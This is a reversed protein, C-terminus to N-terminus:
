HLFRVIPLTGYTQFKYSRKLLLSKLKPCFPFNVRIPILDNDGELTTAHFEVAVLSTSRKMIMVVNAINIPYASRLILTKLTSM